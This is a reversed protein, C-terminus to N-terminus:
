LPRRFTRLMLRWFGLRELAPNLVGWTICYHTDFPATHHVQHHGVSLVLRHRQLWDIPAPRQAMHAWKHLQNTLMTFFLLAVLFLGIFPHRHANLLFFVPILVPLCAFCNDANVAVADGLTMATPDDHHDRFPKIFKQGVVPTDPSGFNDFLFHVLGSLFDAVAYGVTFAVVIGVLALWSLHGALALTVRVTFLTGFVGFAALSVIELVRHSTPYDYRGLWWSYHESPPHTAM